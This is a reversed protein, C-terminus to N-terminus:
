ELATADHSKTVIFALGAPLYSFIELSASTKSEETNGLWFGEYFLWYGYIGSSWFPLLESYYLNYGCAILRSKKKINLVLSTSFLILEYLFTM